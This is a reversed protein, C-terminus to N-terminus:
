KNFLIRSNIENRKKIDLKEYINRTHFKITNISVFLENAIQQNNFGKALYLFVDTERETLQHEIAINEIKRELVNEESTTVSQMKEELIVVQSIYEKLQANILSNEEQMKKIRYALALSLLVTELAGGLEISALVFQNSPIWGAGHITRVVLGLVYPIWAIIYFKALKYGNRYAIIAVIIYSPFSLLVLWRGFPTIQEITLFLSLVTLLLSLYAIVWMFNDLRKHKEKLKLFIAAFRSSFFMSIGAFTIYIYADTGPSNPWLFQDGIRNTSITTLISFFTTGVYYLYAKDHLSFYLMLNYLAMVIMLGFFVGTLLSDLDFKGNIENIVTTSQSLVNIFDLFLSKTLHTVPM